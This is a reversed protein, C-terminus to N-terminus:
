PFAAPLRVRGTAGWCAERAELMLVKLHKTAKDNRLWHAAFAGSIGSGIIVIDAKTPLHPTTRHGLLTKSPESHWFSATSSPTPLGAQGTSKIVTM